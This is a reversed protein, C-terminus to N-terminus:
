LDTGNQTRLKATAYRSFSHLKLQFDKKKEEKEEHKEGRIILSGNSLKVEVNKEDMGPLEATVEYAKDSESIDM